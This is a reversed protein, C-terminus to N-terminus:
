KEGTFIIELVTELADMDEFNRINPAIGYVELSRGYADTRYGLDTRWIIGTNPLAIYMHTSGMIHSTNEGVVIALDTEMAIMTFLASASASGGDVLLWIQGEFGVADDAPSIISRSVIVYVLRELDNEDFLDMEREAIFDVSPLIEAYPVSDLLLASKMVAEMLATVAEGGTFFEYEDAYMPENILRELLLRIPYSMLGGGNGRIDIILHDFGSVEQLFPLIYVDDYEPETYFSHIRLLAVEDPVLVATQVNNELRPFSLSDEDMDVEIEGYFWLASPHIFAGQALLAFAREDANDLNEYHNRMFSTYQATYVDLTRPMLHGIGMLDSSFFILM